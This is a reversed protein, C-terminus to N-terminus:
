CPDGAVKVNGVVQRIAAPAEAGFDAAVLYGDRAREQLRALVTQRAEFILDRDKRGKADRATMRNAESAARALTVTAEIALARNAPDCLSRAPQQYICNVLQSFLLAQRVVNDDDDFRGGSSFQGVQIMRYFAVSGIAGLDGLPTAAACTRLLSASEATGLRAPSWLPATGAGPSRDSQRSSAGDNAAVSTRSSPSGYNLWTYVALGSGVFAVMAGLATLLGSGVAPGPKQAKNRMENVISM